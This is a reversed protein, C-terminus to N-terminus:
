RLAPDKADPEQLDEWRLGFRALYKRLRDGDNPERRDARSVAFLQRGAEALTRARACVELVDELQVRDFRDLAVGPLLRESRGASRPAEASRPAWSGELRRIEQEVLPLDVRGGAALTALREVSASLDRFNREWSAQRGWSLYRARAEKNFRVARALRAAQRALEFELNPELDEPRDRLGPLHFTWTDLRALLDERFRGARVAEQLPRHTGALLRFQVQVEQDSGLPRFRGEELALLLLAQEDLGLEGIEDLFLMGRDAAKLLGGRSAEAGTFAGRVHGFLTSSAADGRLTACNVDVLPGSVVKRARAHEHIRRALASKGSGTPGLLLIPAQSHTAVREIQSIMLNYSENRTPIGQRLAGAAQEARAAFRAAIRDYRALDLDVLDLRPPAGAAPPPGTQALLAPVFGAEVLLFWSIQMVHTGTTLHVWVEEEAGFDLSLVWDHLNAWVEEFDWPNGSEWPHFVVETSPSVQRVDSAVVEALGRHRTHVLLDLRRVEAVEQQVLSVTPRWRSWRQANLPLDTVTGLM